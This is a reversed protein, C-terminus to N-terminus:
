AGGGVADPDLVPVDRRTEDVVAVGSAGPLDTSPATAPTGLTTTSLEPVPPPVGADGASPAALGIVLAGVIVRLVTRRRWGM